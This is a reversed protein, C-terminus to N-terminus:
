REDESDSIAMNTESRTDYDDENERSAWHKLHYDHRFAAFAAPNIKALVEDKTMYELGSGIANETLPQAGHRCYACIVEVEPPTLPVRDARVVIVSGVEGQWQMPAWGWGLDGAGQFGANLGIDLFLFTAEQNTYAFVDDRWNQDAPAQIILLPVGIRKAIASIAGITFVSHQTQIAVSSYKQKGFTDMDGQCSIQVGDVVVPSASPKPDISTDAYDEFYEVIDRMDEIQVDKYDERGMSLQVASMCIGPGRWDHCLRGNTAAVLSPNKRRNEKLFTDRFLFKTSRIRCGRRSSYNFTRSDIYPDDDGLHNKVDAIQYYFNDEKDFKRIIKVWLWRPNRSIEPFLIARVMGERPPLQFEPYSECLHRHFHYQASQCAISCYRVAKCSSCRTSTTKGCNSCVHDTSGAEEGGFPGWESACDENQVAAATHNSRASVADVEWIPSKSSDSLVGTNGTVLPVTVGTSSDPHAYMVTHRYIKDRLASQLHGVMRQLITRYTQEMGTDSVSTVSPPRWGLCLNNHAGCLEVQDQQELSEVYLMCCYCAAKSCAIYRDNDVFDTLGNGQLVLSDLLAIEAHTSNRKTNNLLDEMYTYPTSADSSSFNIRVATDFASVDQEPLLDKVIQHVSQNSHLLLSKGAKPLPVTRVKVNFVEPCINWAHLMSHLCQLHKGLRLTQHHLAQFPSFRPDFGGEKTRALIQLLPLNRAEYCDRVLQLHQPEVTTKFLHRLGLLSKQLGEVTM